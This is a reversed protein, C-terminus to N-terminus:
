LTEVFLVPLFQGVGCENIELHVVSSLTRCTFLVDVLIYPTIVDPTHTFLLKAIHASLFPQWVMIIM